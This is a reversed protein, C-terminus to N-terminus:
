DAGARSSVSQTTASSTVTGRLRAYECLESTIRSLSSVHMGNSREVNFATSDSFARNRM